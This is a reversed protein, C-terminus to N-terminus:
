APSGAGAGATTDPYVIFELLNGEPDRIYRSIGTDTGVNRGGVREVPGEIVEVGAAELMSALDAGPGDWVLCLDGCGPRAAPGRLSFRPSQWLRPAHLNIKMDGCCVAYVIPAHADDVTFGISRYFALMADIDNVPFAVHDLRRVSM